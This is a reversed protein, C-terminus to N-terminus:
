FWWSEANIFETSDGGFSWFPPQGLDHALCIVEVLDENAGLARAITRGIQAVELTHTLRTAITIGKM